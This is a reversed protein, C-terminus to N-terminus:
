YTAVTYLTFPGQVDVVRTFRVLLPENARFSGLPLQIDEMTYLSFPLTWTGNLMTTSILRTAHRVAHWTSPLSWVTVNITGM